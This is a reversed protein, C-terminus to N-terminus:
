PAAIRDHGDRRDRFKISYWIWLALATVVILVASGIMVMIVIGFRASRYPGVHAGYNGKCNSAVKKTAAPVDGLGEQVLLNLADMNDDLQFADPYARGTGRSSGAPSDNAQVWFDLNYTANLLANPNHSRQWQQFGNCAATEAGREFGPGGESCASLTLAGAGIIGLLIAYKLLKM